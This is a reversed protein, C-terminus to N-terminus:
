LLKILCSEKLFVELGINLFFDIIKKMGFQFVKKEGKLYKYLFNYVIFM